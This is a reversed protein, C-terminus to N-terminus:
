YGAKLIRKIEDMDSNIRCHLNIDHLLIYGANLELRGAVYKLLEAFGKIDSKMAIAAENSRGLITLNVCDEDDDDEIDFVTTIMCPVESNGIHKTKFLPIVARRTEPHERLLQITRELGDEFQLEEGYTYDHAQLGEGNPKGTILNEAFASDCLSTLKDDSDECCNCPIVILVHKYYKVKEERQDRSYKGREM